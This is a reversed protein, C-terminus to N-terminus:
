PLIWTDHAAVPTAYPLETIGPVQKTLSQVEIELPEGDLLLQLSELAAEPEPAVRVGRDLTSWAGVWLWYRREGSQNVRLAGLSLYDRAHAALPTSGPVAAAAAGAYTVTAATGADLFEREPAAEQRGTCASLLWVLLLARRMLLGGSLGRLHLVADYDSDAVASDRRAFEGGADLELQWSRGLRWLLRLAPRLLTESVDGAAMERRAVMLRPNIRFQRSLPYRSDLVLTTTSATTGDWYRLGIISTDGETLLSSGILSLYYGTELDSDPTAAIGGSATTGEFETLTM